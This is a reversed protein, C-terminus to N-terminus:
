KHEGIKLSIENFFDKPFTTKWIKDLISIVRFLFGNIPRWKSVTFM